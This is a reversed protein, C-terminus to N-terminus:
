LPSDLAGLAWRMPGVYCWCCQSQQEAGAGLGVLLHIREGVQVVPLRDGPILGRVVLRDSNNSKPEQYENSIAYLIRIAPLPDPASPSVKPLPPTYSIHNFKKHKPQLM